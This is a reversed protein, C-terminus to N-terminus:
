RGPPPPPPRLTEWPATVGLYEGWEFGSSSIIRLQEPPLIGALRGEATSLVAGLGGAYSLIRAWHRGYPTPGGEAIAKNTLSVGEKYADDFVQDMKAHQSDDIGAKEEIAKRTEKMRQRPGALGMEILPVMRARYQEE